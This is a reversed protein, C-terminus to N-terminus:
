SESVRWMRELFQKEKEDVCWDLFRDPNWAIPLLEEHIKGSFKRKHHYKFLKGHILSFGLWERCLKVIEVHDIEAAYRMVSNLKTAGWEKCLKVIEVHDGWTAGEMARNFDTVGWEKCLKVIEIHGYLTAWEMGQNFVTAGQEKCLKVIEIHGYWTAEEM